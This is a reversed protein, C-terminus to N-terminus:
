LKSADIEILDTYPKSEATLTENPNWWLDIGGRSITTITVNYITGPTLTKLWYIEPTSGLTQQQYGDIVVRYHNLTTNGDPPNWKLFLHNASFNSLERNLIGPPLPETYILFMM